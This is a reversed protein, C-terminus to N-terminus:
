DNIVKYVRIEGIITDLFVSKNLLMRMQENDKKIMDDKLSIINKVEDEFNRRYTLIFNAKANKIVKYNIFSNWIQKKKYIVYPYALSFPHYRGTKLFESYPFFVSIDQLCVFSSDSKEIYRYAAESNEKVSIYKQELHLLPIQKTVSFSVVVTSLVVLFVSLVRKLFVTYNVNQFFMFISLLFFVFGTWLYHPWIRKTLILVPILLCFGISAIILYNEIKKTKYFNWIGNAIILIFILSLISTIFIHGSYNPSFGKEMWDIINVNSDDYHDTNKFTSKIYTQLFMSNFPTLLLAPVAILVGSIFCFVALIINKLKIGENFLPLLFFLPLIMLANFKAGYALGLWIFHKGFVWNKKYGYNLFLSIFFLQIPEPKPIMVFYSTYYLSLIVIYFLLRYFKERLFTMSCIILGFFIFLVHTMRIAFVMGEIGFIKYPLYAIIADIYFVVRGYIMIDGSAIALAFHKFSAPELISYVEKVTLYEDHGSFTYNINAGDLFQLNLAISYIIFIIFVIIEIIYKKIFNM